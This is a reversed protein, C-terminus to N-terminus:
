EADNVGLPSAGAEAMAARVEDELLGILRADHAVRSDLGM